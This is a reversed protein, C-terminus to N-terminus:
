MNKVVRTPFPIVIGNKSFDKMISQRLDSCMSFGSPFDKTYFIATLEVSFDKLGTCYVIVLPDNNKKQKSSRADTLQPHKMINEIIIKKSIEIDSEYSIDINLANRYSKESMDRNEIISTNMISNPIVVDVNEITRVVTHRFGITKVIGSVNKDKIIIMDGVHFPQYISLIIGAIFNGLTEQAALGFIVALFSSAGLITKGISSLPIIDSLIMFFALGYFITRLSNVFLPVVTKTSKNSNVIAKSIYKEIFKLVIKSVFVILITKVTFEILGGNFINNGYNLIEEM